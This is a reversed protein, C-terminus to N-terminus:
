SLQHEGLTGIAASFSADFIMLADRNLNLTGDFFINAQVKDVEVPHQSDDGPSAVGENNYFGQAM